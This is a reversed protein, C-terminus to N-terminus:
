VGIEDCVSEESVMVPVELPMVDGMSGEAYEYTVDVDGRRGGVRSM